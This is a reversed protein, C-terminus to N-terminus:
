AASSGYSLNLVGGTVLFVVPGKVRSRERILAALAPSGFEPDLLIGEARAMVATAAKMQDPDAEREDLLEWRVANREKVGAMDLAHHAITSIREDCEDVPRHVSAGVIRVQDARRRYGAVLGAQTGCSGTPLWVTRAAKGAQRLQGEIEEVAALYGFAGVPDAGGRGVVYPHRGRSRLSEELEALAPDVSLRAPDGTFSVNVRELRELMELSGRGPPPRDGFMVLEVDLGRAVAGVAATLVWNSRPGGGTVFVDAGSEEAVGVHFEVPRAKNGGLALGTLDDRKLLIEIGIAESLRPAPALPTPLAALRARAPFRM